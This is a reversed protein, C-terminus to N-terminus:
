KAMHTKLEANFAIPNGDAKEICEKLVANMKDATNYEDVTPTVNHGKPLFVSEGTTRRSEDDLEVVLKCYDLNTCEKDDAFTNILDKRIEEMSRHQVEAPKQSIGGNLVADYYKAKAESLSKNEAEVKNLRAQLRQVLEATAVEPNASQPSTESKKEEKKEESM